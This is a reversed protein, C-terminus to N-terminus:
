QPRAHSGHRAGGRNVGHGHRPGTTTQVRGRTTGEGRQVGYCGRRPWVMVASAAERTRAHCAHRPGGKAMGGAGAPVTPDM